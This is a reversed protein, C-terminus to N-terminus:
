YAPYPRPYTIKDAPGPPEPNSRKGCAALAVDALLVALLLWACRRVRAGSPVPRLVLGRSGARVGGGPLLLVLLGSFTAGGGRVM